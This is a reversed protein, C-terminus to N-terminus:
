VKTGDCIIVPESYKDTVKKCENIGTYMGRWLAVYSEKGERTM